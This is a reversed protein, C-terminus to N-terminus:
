LRILASILERWIRVLAAKPFAGQHRRVLRRMVEAERGPLHFAGGNSGKVAAIKQVVETRRMILDHLATDIEDIQRRLESLPNQAASMLPPLAKSIPAFTITARTGFLLSFM